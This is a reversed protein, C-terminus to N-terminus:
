SEGAVPFPRPRARPDIKLRSPLSTADTACSTNILVKSSRSEAFPAFDHAHVCYTSSRAGPVPAQIALYSRISIAFGEYRVGVTSCKRSANRANMADATEGFMSAHSRSRSIGRDNQVSIPCLPKRHGQTSSCSPPTPASNPQETTTQSSSPRVPAIPICVATETCESMVTGYKASSAVPWSRSRHIAPQRLPSITVAIPMVSGPQPDSRAASRAVATRSPSSNTM